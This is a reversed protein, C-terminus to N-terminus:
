WCSTGQFTWAYSYRSIDNNEIWRRYKRAETWELPVSIFKMFTTFKVDIFITTVLASVQSIVVYYILYECVFLVLAFNRIFKFIFCLINLIKTNMIWCQVNQKSFDDAWRPRWLEKEDAKKESWCPNNREIKKESLFWRLHSLYNLLAYDILLRLSFLCMLPVDNIVLLSIMSTVQILRFIQLQFNRLVCKEKIGRLMM